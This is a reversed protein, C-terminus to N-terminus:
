KGGKVSRVTPCGDDIWNLIESRSWRVLAGIHRPRPMKGADALRYVHRPSCDLLHAVARVDMLVPEAAAGEVGAFRGGIAHENHNTAM